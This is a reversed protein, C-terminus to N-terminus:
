VGLWRRIAALPRRAIWYGLCVNEGYLVASGELGLQLGAQPGQWEAEARFSPIQQPSLESHNAVFELDASRSRRPDAALIVRLSRSRDFAIKDDGPLWIRVKTQEPDVIQLIREGVQVPRGRWAHPDSFM